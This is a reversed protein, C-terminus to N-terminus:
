VGVTGFVGGVEFVRRDHRNFPVGVPLCRVAGGSRELRDPDGFRYPDFNGADADDCAGAAGRGISIRRFFRRDRRPRNHEQVLRKNLEIFRANNTLSITTTDAMRPRINTRGAIHAFDCDYHLVPADLRIAVAAVLLRM